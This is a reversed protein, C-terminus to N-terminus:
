PSILNSEQSQCWLTSFPQYNLLSITGDTIPLHPNSDKKAQLLGLLLSWQVPTKYVTAEPTLAILERKAVRYKESYFIFVRLLWLSLQCAGSIQRPLIFYGSTPTLTVQAEM